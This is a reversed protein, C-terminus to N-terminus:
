APVLGKETLWAPNSINTHRASVTPTNWISDRACILQQRAHLRAAEVVQHNLYCDHARARHLAAHHV